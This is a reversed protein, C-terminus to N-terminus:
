PAKPSISKASPQPSLSTAREPVGADADTRAVLRDGCGLALLMEGFAGYLPIIRQAPKELRLTHGTDDRVEIPAGLAPFGALVLLLALLSPLCLRRSMATPIGSCAARCTMSPM